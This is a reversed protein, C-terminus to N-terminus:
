ISNLWSGGHGTIDRTPLMPVTKTKISELNLMYRIDLAIMELLSSKVIAM